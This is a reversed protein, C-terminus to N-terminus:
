AQGTLDTCASSRTTKTTVTHSICECDVPMASRGCPTQRLAAVIITLCLSAQCSTNACFDQSNNVPGFRPRLNLQPGKRCELISIISKEHEEEESSSSISDLSDVRNNSYHASGSSALRRLRHRAGGHALQGLSTCIYNRNTNLGPETTALGDFTTETTMTM